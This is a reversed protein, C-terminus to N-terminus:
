ITISDTATLQDGAVNLTATATLLTQIPRSYSSLLSPGTGIKAVTIPLGGGTGSATFTASQTVATTGATHANTTIKAILGTDGTGVTIEGALVTDTSAPAASTATLAMFLAPLGGPILSYGTTSSPTTAASGGPSGPVYWRDVSYVPSTGSTNGTVLGYAGNSWVVIVQGKADGSVHSGGPAETGGTLSASTTATATGTQGLVTASGLASWLAGSVWDLGFNTILATIDSAPDPMAGPMYTQQGHKTWYLDELDDPATMPCDWFESLLRELTPRSTGDHEGTVRVFTPRDINHAAAVGQGQALVLFAEHGPLHTVIPNRQMHLAIEGVTAPSDTMPYGDAPIQAYTVHHGAPGAHGIEVLM